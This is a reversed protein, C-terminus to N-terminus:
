ILSVKKIRSEKGNSIEIMYIGKPFKALDFEVQRSGNFPLITETHMEQGLLNLVKFEVAQTPDTLRLTLTVAGSTPNPYVTFEKLFSEPASIGASVGEDLGGAFTSTSLMLITLFTYIRKM